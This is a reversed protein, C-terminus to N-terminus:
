LSLWITATGAHWWCEGDHVLLHIQQIYPTCQWSNVLSQWISLGLDRCHLQKLGKSALYGDRPSISKVLFDHMVRGRVSWLWLSATIFWVSSCVAALCCTCSWCLQGSFGSWALCSIGSKLSATPDLEEYTNQVVQFIGIKNPCCNTAHRICVSGDTHIGPIQEVLWYAVVAVVLGLHWVMSCSPIQLAVCLEQSALSPWEM